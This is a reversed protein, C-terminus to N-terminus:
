DHDGASAGRGDDIWRGAARLEDYTFRRFKASILHNTIKPVLAPFASHTVATCDERRLPDEPRVMTIGEDHNTERELM